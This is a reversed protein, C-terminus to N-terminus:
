ALTFVEIPERRGRVTVPGLDRLRFEASPLREATQRSIVIEVDFQKTLESQIRAATNVVDGIATFDSRQPIGVAGLVVQGTHIGVVVRTRPGTSVSAGEACMQVAARVAAEAGDSDDPLVGFLAMMGDGLFKDLMGGHAFVARAMTGVYTNLFEVVEPASLEEALATSNRLDAFMVTITRHQGALSLLDGTVVREVVESPLFRELGRRRELEVIMAGLALVVAVLMLVHYGWWMLSWPALLMMGEAEALLLFAVALAGDVPRRARLYTAAQHWASFLMMLVALGVVAYVTPPKSFPLNALFDPQWAAFLAYGVVALVVLVALARASVVQRVRTAIPHYSAAFFFSALFVSLFGSLGVVTGSYDIAQSYGGYMDAHGYGGGFMVGPTHLAHVGFFGAMTLFGLAVLLVQFQKLHLAARAVMLAALLSLLCVLTVIYFHENPVIVSRDRTPDVTLWLVILLPAVVATLAALRARM